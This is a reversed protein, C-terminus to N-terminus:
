PSAACITASATSAPASAFGSSGNIASATTEPTDLWFRKLKDRQAGLWGSLGGARQTPSLLRHRKLWNELQQGRAQLALPDFRPAGYYAAPADTVM